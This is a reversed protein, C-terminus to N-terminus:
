LELLKTDEGVELRYRGGIKLAYNEGGHSTPFGFCVPFGCGEVKDRILEEATQGFPVVTDKLDTFGGVILGALGELKGSRVLQILMRDLNYLYEGVDEIFLLLGRTDPESRSGILHALLTLNGGVLVGEARGARNFPHPACRYAAKGGGLAAKLTAVSPSDAGEGQFAGAMPAHLSAIQYVSFLHAHLVTVDSFGIVWKPSRVFARFDLRDIIRSTGYGGRGCLIAKVSPDDLMQQLDDLREEDTGSFYHFAHGLTRGARVRFGWRELTDICDRARAAEMQGAPCVIGITDGPQLYPPLTM